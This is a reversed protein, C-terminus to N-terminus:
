IGGPHRSDPNSFANKRARAQLVILALFAFMFLFISLIFGELMTASYIWWFNESTMTGGWNPPRFRLTRGAQDLLWLAAFGCWADPSFMPSNTLIPILSVGSLWARIMTGVRMARALLHDQKALPSDISTLVAYLLVFTAIALCMAAVALPAKSMGLFFLAISFSPLANLSCHITWFLLKERFRTPFSDPSAPNETQM